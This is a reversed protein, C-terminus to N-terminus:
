SDPTETTSTAESTTTEEALAEVEIAIPSSTLVTTGDSKLRYGYYFRVTGGGAGFIGTYTIPRSACSTLVGEMGAPTNRFIELNIPFIQMLHEPKLEVERVSGLDATTTNEDLVLDEISGDLLFRYFLNCNEVTEDCDTPIVEAITLLDAAEGLHDTDVKIRGRVDIQDTAKIKIPTNYPTVGPGFEATTTLPDATASFAIGPFFQGDQEYTSPMAVDSKLEPTTGYFIFNDVIIAARDRVFSPSAFYIGVSQIDTFEHEIFEAESNNFLMDCGTPEYVAWRTALPSIAINKGQFGGEETDMAYESIYFTTGDQMVFRADTTNWAHRVRAVMLKSTEDVIIREASAGGNVFDAKKWLFVSAFNVEADETEHFSISPEVWGKMVGDEIQGDTAFLTIDAWYIEYFQNIARRIYDPFGPEYGLGFSAGDQQVTAQPFRNVIPREIGSSTTTTVDSMNTYNAFMGGYFLASPRLSRYGRWSAADEGNENCMTRPNLLTDMDFPICVQSDNEIGDQNLDLFHSTERSRGYAVEVNKDQRQPLYEDWWQIFKVSEAAIPPALLLLSAFLMNGLLYLTRM